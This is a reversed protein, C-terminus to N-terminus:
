RSRRRDPSWVTMPGSARRARRPMTRRAAALAALALIAIAAIPLLLAVITGFRSWATQASPLPEAARVPTFSFAFAVMLKTTTLLFNKAM